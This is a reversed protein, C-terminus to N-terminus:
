AFLRSGKNGSIEEEKNIEPIHDANSLDAILSRKLRCLSLVNHFSISSMLAFIGGDGSGSKEVLLM